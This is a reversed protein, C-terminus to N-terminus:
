TSTMREPKKGLCVSAPEDPKLLPDQFLVGSSRRRSVVPHMDPAPRVKAALLPSMYAHMEEAIGLALILQHWEGARPKVTKINRLINQYEKVVEDPKLNKKFIFEYAMQAMVMAVSRGVGASCHYFRNGGYEADYALICKDKETFVPLGIDKWNPVHMIYFVKESFPDVHRYFELSVEGPKIDKFTQPIDTVGNAFLMYEAVSIREAGRMYNFYKEKGKEETPGVAVLVNVDQEALRALLALFTHEFPGEGLVVCKGEEGESSPIKAAPYMGEPIKGPVHEKDQFCKDLSYGPSFAVQRRTFINPYRCRIFHPDDLCQKGYDGGPGYEENLEMFIRYFDAYITGDLLKLTLAHQKPNAQSEAAKGAGDPLQEYFSLIDDYYNLPFLGNAREVSNPFVKDLNSLQEKIRRTFVGPDLEEYVLSRALELMRTLQRHSQKGTYTKAPLGDSLFRLLYPVGAGKMKHKEYFAEINLVMNEPASFRVLLKESYKSSYSSSQELLYTWLDKLGLEIGRLMYICLPKGHAFYETPSKRLIASVNVWEAIVVDSGPKLEPKQDLDGLFVLFQHSRNSTQGPADGQSIGVTNDTSILFVKRNPFQNVDIGMEEEAERRATEFSNVDMPPLVIGDREFGETFARGDYKVKSWDGGAQELLIEMTRTASKKIADRDYHIDKDKVSELRGRWKAQPAETYGASWNWMDSNRSNCILAIYIEGTKADRYVPVIGASTAERSYEYAYRADTGNRFSHGLPSLLTNLEKLLGEDAQVTQQFTLGSKPTLGRLAITVFSDLVPGIVAPPVSNILKFAANLYEEAARSSTPSDLKPDAPIPM